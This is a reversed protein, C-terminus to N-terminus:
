SEACDSTRNSKQHVPCSECNEKVLSSETAQSTQLGSKSVLNKARTDVIASQQQTSPTDKGFPLFSLQWFRLCNSSRCLLHRSWRDASGCNLCPSSLLSTNDLVRCGHNRSCFKRVWQNLSCTSRTYESLIQHCRANFGSGGTQYSARVVLRREPRGVMLSGVDSIMINLSKELLKWVVDM